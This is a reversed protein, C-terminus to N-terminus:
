VFGCVMKKLKNKTHQHYIHSQFESVHNCAFGCRRCTHAFNENFPIREMCKKTVKGEPHYQYIKVEDFGLGEYLEKKQKALGSLKHLNDNQKHMIEIVNIRIKGDQIYVEIADPSKDCLDIVRRHLTKATRIYFELAEDHEKSAHKGMYVRVQLLTYHILTKTGSGM